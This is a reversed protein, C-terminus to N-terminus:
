EAVRRYGVESDPIGMQLLLAEIREALTEEKALVGALVGLLELFSAPDGAQIAVSMRDFARILERRLSLDSDVIGGFEAVEAPPQLEDVRDVYGQVAQKLSALAQTMMTANGSALRQGLDVSAFSDEYDNAIRVYEKLFRVAADRKQAATATPTPSPTPTPATGGCGITLVLAVVAVLWARSM